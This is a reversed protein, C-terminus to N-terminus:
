SMKGQGERDGESITNLIVRELLEQFSLGHLGLISSIACDKPGFAPNTNADIIFHRGSADVRLDFKGYDEMKLVEFATKIHAKVRPPLDYRAYVFASDSQPGEGWNVNFTNIKFKKDHYIDENFVKEAAYVKMNIGETVVVTVERGAVYEELLVPQKYTSMLFNVRRELCKEDECIASDDIEISGHVENLKTILPFNLTVTDVDGPDKILVYDPVPINWQELLNKTLYKNSNIAQGMMSSGTYPIQLLELIAPITANLYEKGYVSDVLNLVFDPKFAKLNETVNADGAFLATHISMKDLVEAIQGARGKVEAESIYLQETPFYERKADSYLIAIRKPLPFNM